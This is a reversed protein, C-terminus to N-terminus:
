AAEVQATRRVELFRDPAIVGFYIFHNRYGPALRNLADYCDPDCHKRGWKWWPVLLRDRSPIMVKIRVAGKDPWRTGEPIHCRFHRGAIAREADTMIRAGEIGLGVPESDTTFWVGNLVENFSTPVEGRDLGESSISQLYQECTFHYLIM